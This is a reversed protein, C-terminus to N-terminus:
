KKTLLDIIMCIFGLIALVIFLTNVIPILAFLWALVEAKWKSDLLDEFIVFSGGYAGFVSFIYILLLALLIM